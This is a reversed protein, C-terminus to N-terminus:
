LVDFSAFAVRDINAVLSVETVIDFLHAAHQNASGRPRLDRQRLHRADGKATSRRQDPVFIARKSAVDIDVKLVSVISTEDRLCILEQMVLEVQRRVIGEM